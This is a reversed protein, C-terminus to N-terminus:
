FIYFKIGVLNEYLFCQGILDVMQIEFVSFCGSLDYASGTASLDDASDMAFMDDTSHHKAICL